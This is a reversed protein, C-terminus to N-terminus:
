PLAVTIPEKQGDRALTLEVNSGSAPWLLPWLDTVERAACDVEGIRVLRDKPRLGAREAPSNAFVRAVFLRPDAVRPVHEGPTGPAFGLFEGADPVIIKGDKRTQWGELAV